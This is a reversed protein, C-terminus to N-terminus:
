GWDHGRGDDSDVRSQGVVKYADISNGMGEMANTVNVVKIGHVDGAIQVVGYEERQCSDLDECWSDRYDVACGREM